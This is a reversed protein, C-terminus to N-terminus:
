PGPDSVDRCGLPDGETPDFDPAPHPAAPAQTGQFLYDLLAVVDALNLVWSDDTDLADECSVPIGGFQHFLNRVPDAIDIVGDMNCDGRIFRRSPETELFIEITDEAM